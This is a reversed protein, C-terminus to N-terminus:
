RPLSLTMNSISEGFNNLAAICLENNELFITSQYKM